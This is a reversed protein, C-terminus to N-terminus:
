MKFGSLLNMFQSEEESWCDTLTSDVNFLAASGEAYGILLLNKKSGNNLFILTTAKMKTQDLNFTFSLTSELLDWVYIQGTFDLAIFVAPRNPSWALTKVAAPLEWKLLPLDSNLSFLAISGNEYGAMFIENIFPHQILTTVSNAVPIDNTQLAFKKPHFRNQHKSYQYIIGCDAAVLVKSQQM